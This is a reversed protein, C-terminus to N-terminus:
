FRSTKKLHEEAEKIAEARATPPIGGQSSPSGPTAPAFYLAHTKQVAAIFTTLSKEDPTGEAFLATLKETDKARLLVYLDDANNAGAKSLASTLYRRQDDAKQQAKLSEVEAKLAENAQENLEAKQQAKELDSMQAEKLAQAETLLTKLGALNSVGLEEFIAKQANTKAERKTKANIANVQEQTLMGSQEAEPQTPAAENTENTENTETRRKLLSLGFVKNRAETRKRKLM